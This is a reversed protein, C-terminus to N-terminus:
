SYGDGSGEPAYREIFMAVNFPGEAEAQDKTVSSIASDNSSSIAFSSESTTLAVSTAVAGELTFLRTIPRANYIFISQDTLTFKENIPCLVKGEQNKEMNVDVVVYKPEGMNLEYDLVTQEEYRVGWEELYLELNTLKPCSPSLAIIADGERLFYAELKDIEEKTFDMMPNALVLLDVDAGINDTLLNVTM